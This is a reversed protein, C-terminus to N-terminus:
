LPFISSTMFVKVACRITIYVAVFLLIGQWPVGDSRAEEDSAEHPRRGNNRNRRNEQEQEYNRRPRRRMQVQTRSHGETDENIGVAERWSWRDLKDDEGRSGMLITQGGDNTRFKKLQRAHAKISSPLKVVDVMVRDPWYAAAAKQLCYLRRNDLSFWRDEADILEGGTAADVLPRGTAEDRMKCRWQIVQIPPFPFKLHRVDTNDSKLTSDVQILGLAESLPRGDRFVQRARRQSFRIDFPCMAETQTTPEDFSCQSSDDSNESAEKEQHQQGDQNSALPPSCREAAAAM